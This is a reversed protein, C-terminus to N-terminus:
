GVERRQFTAVAIAIIATTWLVAYGTAYGMYAFPVATEVTQAHLGDIVWFLGANPVIQYAIAALWSSEIYQGFTYDSIIGLSLVSSCIILTPMQSFRTSAALAVAATIVTILLVLYAAIIVQGGVFNSFFPILEWHEDLKTVAVVALTLMPTLFMLNTTPFDKGHMYNKFAAILLSIIVAGSGLVLVPGDWPDSTNQLVGHRQALVFVLFSVYYALSLASVLGIFKGLIFVPRSIPKSIVSLVTKNEIERTLIGAACFVSLFLGSILLTSLGLDLLLKDDDELTFGALAVNLVLLLATALLIVGYIPQRITEIFTNHAVAYLRQWM